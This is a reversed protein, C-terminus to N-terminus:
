NLFPDIFRCVQMLRPAARQDLRKALVVRQKTKESKKLTGYIPFYQSGCTTSPRGLMYCCRPASYRRASRLTRRYNRDLSRLRQSSSSHARSGSRWARYNDNISASDNNSGTMPYASPKISVDIGCHRIVNERLFIETAVRPPSSVM